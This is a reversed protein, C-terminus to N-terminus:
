KPTILMQNHFETIDRELKNLQDKLIQMNHQFENVKRDFEDQRDKLIKMSEQVYWKNAVDSDDVPPAVRQIKRSKADYNAAVMCLSNDRVYNRILGSYQYYPNTGNRGLSIGFKNISM